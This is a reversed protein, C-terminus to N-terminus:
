NPFGGLKQPLGGSISFRPGDLVQTLPKRRLDRVQVYGVFGAVVSDVVRFEGVLLELLELGNQLPCAILRVRRVTYHFASRDRV